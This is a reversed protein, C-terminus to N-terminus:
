VASLACESAVFLCFCSLPFLVTPSFSLRTLLPIHKRLLPTMGFLQYGWWLQVVSTMVTPCVWAPQVVCLVKLTVVPVVPFIWLCVCSFLVSCGFLRGLFTLIHENLTMQSIVTITIANFLSKSKEIVTKLFCNEETTLLTSKKLPYFHTLTNTHTSSVRFTHFAFGWWVCIKVKVDM